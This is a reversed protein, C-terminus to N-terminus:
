IPPTNQVLVRRRVREKYRRRYTDNSKPDKRYKEKGYREVCVDVARWVCVCVCVCVCM